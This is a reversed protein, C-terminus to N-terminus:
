MRYLEPCSWESVACAVNLMRRVVSRWSCRPNRSFIRAQCSVLGSMLWILDSELELTCGSYVRPNQVEWNLVTFLIVRGFLFLTNKLLLLLIWHPWLVAEAWIFYRDVRIPGTRKDLSFAPRENRIKWSAALTAVMLGSCLILSYWDHFTAAHSVTRSCSPGIFNIHVSNGHAM